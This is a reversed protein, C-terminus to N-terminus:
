SLGVKKHMAESAEILEAVESDYGNSLKRFIPEKKSAKHFTGTGYQLFRNCTGASIMPWHRKFLAQIVSHLKEYSTRLTEEAPNLEVMEQAIIDGTDIGEDLFHISVGKPTNDVFSWFNPDSGRNWPLYSIHLNIARDPFRELINKPVIHRYGYSILFTYEGELVFDVSLRGTEHRVFCNQDNLWRVLPSSGRGLYLIRERVREVWDRVQSECQYAPDNLGFWWLPVSRCSM